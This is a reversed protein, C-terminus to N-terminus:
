VMSQRRCLDELLGLGNRGALRAVQRGRLSCGYGARELLGADRHLWGRAKTPTAWSPPLPLGQRCGLKPTAQRGERLADRLADRRPDFTLRSQSKNGVKSGVGRRVAHRVARRVTHRM